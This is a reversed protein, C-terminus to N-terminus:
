SRIKSVLYRVLGYLAASLVIACVCLIAVAPWTNISGSRLIGAGLVLAFASIAVGISLAKAREHWSACRNCYRYRHKVVRHAEEKGCAYCLGRRNRAGGRVDRFIHVALVALVPASIVLLIVLESM